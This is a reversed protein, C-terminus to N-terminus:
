PASNRRQAEVSAGEVADPVLPPLGLFTFVERIVVDQSRKYFLAHDLNPLINLSIGPQKTLWRGKVGFEELGDLSRDLMGMILHIRAGRQSAKKFETMAAMAAAAPLLARKLRVLRPLIATHVAERVVRLWKRAQVPARLYVSRMSEVHAARDLPTGAQWTLWANIAIAYQFEENQLAARIAHFGGTCVGMVGIRKVGYTKLVDAATKFDKFRCAEYVHAADGNSEGFGSFDFRLSALGAAALQRCTRTSFNGVGARPDAATNGLLVGECPSQDAPLCVIGRLGDGFSVPEERWLNSHIKEASLAPAVSAVSTASPRLHLDLWNLSAAFVDVPPSNVHADKFLNTYGTFRISEVQDGFTAILSKTAVPSALLIPPWETALDPIHVTRLTKVTAANLTLGNTEIADSVHRSTQMAQALTLEKLWVSGSAFPDWLILGDPKIKASAVCALTAGARLGCIFIQSVGPRLRMFAVASELAELWHSWQDQDADLPASDGEGPHDYRLVQYGQTSLSEAWQFLSRYTWRADRGAAPCIIVAAGNGPQGLRYHLSGACGAFVIPTIENM